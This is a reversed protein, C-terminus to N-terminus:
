EFIKYDLKTYDEIVQKIEPYSPSDNRKIIIINECGTAIAERISKPSDEFILADQIDIDLRKACELYMDTKNSYEGTDYVTQNYDFWRDLKLLSYYFDVNFKISSTCLIVPIDNEQLYNLLEEGGTLIKNRNKELCLNQYVEEKHFAYYDIDKQKAKVGILEYAKNIIQYNMYQKADVYFEEFDIKDQAIEQIIIKWADHNIDHDLFLTGNFDFCVGKIHKM